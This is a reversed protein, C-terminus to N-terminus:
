QCSCQDFFEIDGIRNKIRIQHPWGTCNYDIYLETPRTSNLITLLNNGASSMGQAGYVYNPYGIYPSTVGDLILTPAYNTTSWVIDNCAFGGSSLQRSSYDVGGSSNRSNIYPGFGTLGGSGTYFNNGSSWVSGSNVYEFTGSAHANGREAILMRGTSSFAIDTVKTQTGVTVDIEKTVYGSTSTATFMGGGSTAANFEGSSTLSVSWIEVGGPATPPTTISSGTHTHNKTTRAFYVKTIGSFNYVGIGWLQEGIPSIGAIGDDANFPDLISKIKGTSPDIRYIKGDELNTAFLQNNNYDFAINGLSNGVSTSFGTSPIQNTGVTNANSSNLTTVLPTTTNVTNYNTYYIGAAGAPGAGTAWTIGSNYIVGRIGDFQYIDTAALYIGKNHDLAIGFVEGIKDSTWNTPFVSEVRNAGATPDNWNNGLPASANNLTKYITAVQNKPVTSVDSCMTGVMFGAPEDNSCPQTVYDCTESQCQQFVIASATLLILAKSFFSNNNKM